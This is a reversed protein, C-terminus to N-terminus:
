QGSVPRSQSNAAANILKEILARSLVATQARQPPSLGRLARRATEVFGQPTLGAPQVIGLGLAEVPHAASDPSPHILAGCVGLAISLPQLGRIPGGAHPAFEPMQKWGRGLLVLPLAARLALAALGQHYAPYICRELFSARDLGEEKVDLQAMRERLYERPQAGLVLPDSTLEDVITEWLLRHSSFQKIHAPIDLTWTDAALGLLKIKAEGCGAVGVSLNPWGGIEIRNPSWGVEMAAVAWRSDALIVGDGPANADPRALRDKTVWTIWATRSALVDPMDTRFVDAVVIADARAAAAAVSLPSAQQPDDPDLMTINGSNALVVSLAPGAMDGLKFESGAVAVWRDGNHPGTGPSRRQAQSRLLAIRGSRRVTEASVIEQAEITFPQLHEDELLATRIFQQPLPLGPHNQFIEALRQAWDWGAAFLLRGAQIARSFDDCRLIVGLTLFDPIIAVVAQSSAIREFCARLQGAHTPNVYCGVVGNLELTKLLERGAALPVSCGTWWGGDDHATLAGDRGFVFELPLPLREIRGALDPQSRALAAFNAQFNANAQRDAETPPLDAGAAGGGALIQAITFATSNM